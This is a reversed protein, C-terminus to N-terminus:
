KLQHFYNKKLAEDMEFKFEMAYKFFEHPDYKYNEKYPYIVKNNLKRKEGMRKGVLYYEDTVLSFTRTDVAFTKEKSLGNVGFYYHDIDLGYLEIITRYLDIQSRVLTQKGKLLGKYIGEENKEEGPIYIFSLTKLMEKEYELFSFETKTKGKIELIDKYPISSGHDSYFIFASDNFYKADDIFKTFFNEFYSEYNLYRLTTTDVNIENTFRPNDEYYLFPVHPQIMMPFLFNKTDEKFVEKTWDFLAMDSIWPSKEDTKKNLEKFLHYGNLTNEYYIEKEDYYYYKDFGMMEDMVVVRNYFEKVDSHLAIKNYDPFLKPLSNFIYNDNEYEWYITTDGKPLVGTLVAFEADSSNGIGVNTYFNDFVYSEKLLAKLSKLYTEDLIGEEDLLFHNLSEVHVLILNKDKLIGNLYEDKILSEDIELNYADSIKLKNSYKEENFYSEYLDKNKNYKDYRSLDVEEELEEKSSFLEGFYYNYVGANQVTYLSKEADIQWTSKMKNELFTLSSISLIMGLLIMSFNLQISNFIVADKKYYDKNNSYKFYLYLSLLILFPIFVIIRYYVFLEKVSEVVISATLKGAPNKFVEFNSFSFVTQYYKSFLGLSFILVNLFLTFFVIYLHRRKKNRFIIFGLFLIITLVAFNGVFANLEMLFSRSFSILYRNLLSTTVFYTNVINLLYFLTILLIAKKDTKM